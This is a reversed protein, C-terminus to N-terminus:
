GRASDRGIFPQVENRFVRLGIVKDGESKASDLLHGLCNLNSLFVKSQLILLQDTPVAWRARVEHGKTEEHHVVFDPNKGKRRHQRVISDGDILSAAFCIRNVFLMPLLNGMRNM